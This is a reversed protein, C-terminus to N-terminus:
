KRHGPQYILSVWPLNRIKFFTMYFLITKSMISLKTNMDSSDTLTDDKNFWMFVCTFVRLSRFRVRLFKAFWHKLYYPEEHFFIHKRKCTGTNNIHFRGKICGSIWWILWRYTLLAGHHSSLVCELFSLIKLSTMLVCSQCKVRSRSKAILSDEGRERNKFTCKAQRQAWQLEEWSVNKSVYIHYQPERSYTCSQVRNLGRYLSRLNQHSPASIDTM